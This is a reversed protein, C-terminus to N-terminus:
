SPKAVIILNILSYRRWKRFRKVRQDNKLFRAYMRRKSSKSLPALARVLLQRTENSQLQQLLIREAREAGYEWREQWYKAGAAMGTQLISTFLGAVCAMFSVIPISGTSQVVGALLVGQFIMFFNNRQALQGIEFERLRIALEFTSSAAIEDQSLSSASEQDDM